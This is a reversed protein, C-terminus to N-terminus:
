GNSQSVFADNDDIAWIFRYNTDDINGEFQVIVDGENVEVYGSDDYGDAVAGSWGSRIEDHFFMDMVQYVTAGSNAFECDCVSNIGDRVKNRAM